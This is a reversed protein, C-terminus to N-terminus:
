MNNSAMLWVVLVVMLGVAAIALWTLLHSLRARMADADEDSWGPRSRAVLVAVVVGVPVGAIAYAVISQGHGRSLLWVTGFASVVVWAAVVLYGM